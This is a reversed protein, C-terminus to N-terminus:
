EVSVLVSEPKVSPAELDGAVDEDGARAAVGDFRLLLDNSKEAVYLDGLAVTLDVPNGLKSRPGRARWRVDVLGDATSAGAITFLQGDTASAPDGVDSLVLLDDDPLYHIGHLNVSVKEAALAPTIQRTPGSAGMDVGFAEYVLVVGDTGAVFLLDSDPDYALDWVGRDGGLDAVQVSPAVDGEDTIGFGFVRKAGPDAVLLLGLDGAVAVGKPTLLGTAPGEIRRSGGALMVASTADGLGVVAMVGGLTGPRDYTLFGDGQPGVTASQISLIDGIEGITAELTLAPLLRLVADADRGAPNSAVLVRGNLGGVLAASEPQMTTASASAALDMKGTLATIDDFRFLKDNAKEAVYLDDGLASSDVALDVPNGLATTPGTIWARVQALGTAADPDAITFVQGDTGSMPDGVDSLVLQNPRLIPSLTPVFKIGHLNVSVKAGADAPSFTRAPGNLGQNVSFGDFVLVDGTTTAVYLRNGTADYACDWAIQGGLDDVIFSPAEDGEADLPFAKIDQAAVDAVLVVGLSEAIELGRPQLLGTTPGEIRRAGEGLIGSAQNALGSVVMVGGTDGAADYTVYGDGNSHLAMSQMSTIRGLGGHALLESGSADSVTIADADRGAPNQSAWLSLTPGGGGEGGDGGSGGQGGDGGTTTAGTATTGSASTSTTTGSDDGCALLLAAISTIVGSMRIARFSKLSM